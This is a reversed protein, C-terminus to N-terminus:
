KLERRVKFTYTTNIAYLGVKNGHVDEPIEDVTLAVAYVPEDTQSDRDCVYVFVEKPLKM